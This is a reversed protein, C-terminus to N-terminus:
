SHFFKKTQFKNMLEYDLEFNILIIINFHLFQLNLKNQTNIYIYLM